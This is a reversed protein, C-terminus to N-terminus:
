AKSYDTDFSILLIDKWKIGFIFRHNDIVAEVKLNNSLEIVKCHKAENHLLSNESTYVMANISKIGTFKFFYFNQMKYYSRNRLKSGYWLCCLILIYYILPTFYIYSGFLIIDNQPIFEYIYILFYLTGFGLFGWYISFSRSLSYTRRRKKIVKESPSENHLKVLKGQLLKTYCLPTIALIFLTVNSIISFLLFGVKYYHLYIFEYVPIGM